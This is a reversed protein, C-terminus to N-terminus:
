LVKVRVSMLPSLDRTGEALTDEGCPAPGQVVKLGSREWVGLTNLTLADESFETLAIGIAHDGFVQELPM